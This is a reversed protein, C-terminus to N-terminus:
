FYLGFNHSLHLKHTPSLSQLLEHSIVLMWPQFSPHKILVCRRLPHYYTNEENKTLKPQQTIPDHYSRREKFRIVLDYPPPPITSTDTRIPSACGYCMRIRSGTLWQLTFLNQQLGNSSDSTCSSSAFNYQSHMDISQAYLPSNLQLVPSFTTCLSHGSSPTPPLMYSSSVPSATPTSCSLPLSPTSFTSPANSNIPFSPPFSPLPSSTSFAPSFSPLISTDMCSSLVVSDTTSKKHKPAGKRKQTSKQGGSRPVADGILLSLNPSGKTRRVWQLYNSLCGLDQAAALSHQCINPTSRFVPCDCRVETGDKRRQTTVYHPSESKAAKFASLSAVQRASTTAGAAPLVLGDTSLLEEAKEWMDQLRERSVHGIRADTINVDMVQKKPAPQYENSRRDLSVIKANYAQKIKAKRQDPNMQIWRLHPVELYKFEDVLEYEGEGFISKEFEAQQEETISRLIKNFQPWESRKFNVRRKILNNLSENNNTTFRNPPKGLGCLTRVSAIMSSCMVEMEHTVFWQFFEPSVLEWQPRLRELKDAFDHQDSSDVLGLIETNDNSTGFVDALIQKIGAEGVCLERLKRRINDRKHLSCLLHTSRPFVSLFASSLAEEGDTGVACLGEVGPRMVRIQSAFYHYTSSKRDQHILTPGLFTPHKGTVKNRIMKHEYVTPTVYFDGLNFTPDIGLVSGRVPDDCACFREIDDFQKDTGVVSMVGGEFSVSRVFERESTYHQELLDYVLDKECNSALGSTSGQSSKMNYVQRLNRGVEGSSKMQLVGGARKYTTSLVEKPSGM